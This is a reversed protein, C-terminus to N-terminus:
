SPAVADRPVGLRESFFREWCFLMGRPPQHPFDFEKLQAYGCKGLNRLMKYNDSRPEIVVRQTRFDDLFLYHSISPLWAPVFPEGGFRPEGILVHWGCDYDDVDYFPAIQYEKAWYVEFYGFDEGDFSAILVTVHPVIGVPEPSACYTGAARASCILRRSPTHSPRSWGRGRNSGSCNPALWWNGTTKMCFLEPIFCDGPRRPLGGRFFLKRARPERPRSSSHFSVRDSRPTRVGRIRPFQSCYARTETSRGATSAM